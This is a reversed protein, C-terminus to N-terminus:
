KFYLLPHKRRATFLRGYKLYRTYNKKWYNSIFNSDISYSDGFLFSPKRAILFSDITKGSNWINYPGYKGFYPPAYCTIIQSGCTLTDFFKPEFTTFNDLSAFTVKQYQDNILFLESTVEDIMTDEGCKLVSLSKAGGIQFLLPYKNQYRVIANNIKLTDYEDLEGVEIFNDTKPNFLYCDTQWKKLWCIDLYGDGNNDCFSLNSNNTGYDLDKLITKFKSGVKKQVIFYTSADNKFVTLVFQTNKIFVTDSQIIKYKENNNIRNLFNFHLFPFAILLILSQIKM